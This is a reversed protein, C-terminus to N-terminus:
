LIDEEEECEGEITLDPYEYGEGLYYCYYDFASECFATEVLVGDRKSVISHM